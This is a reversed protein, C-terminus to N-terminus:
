DAGDLFRRYKLLFGKFIILRNLMVQFIRFVFIIERSASYRPFLLLASM